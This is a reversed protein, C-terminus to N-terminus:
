KTSNRLCKLTLTYVTAKNNKQKNQKVDCTRYSSFTMKNQKIPANDKELCVTIIAVEEKGGRITASPHIHTATFSKWQKRNKVEM